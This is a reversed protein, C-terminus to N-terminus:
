PISLSTLKKDFMYTLKILRLSFKASFNVDPGMKLSMQCSFHAFFYNKQNKPRGTWKLTGLSMKANFVWNQGM